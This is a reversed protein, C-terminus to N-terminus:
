GSARNGQSICHAAHHNDAAAGFGDGNGGEAGFTTEIDDDNFLISRARLPKRYKEFLNAALSNLNCCLDSGQFRRFDNNFSRIQRLGRPHIKM